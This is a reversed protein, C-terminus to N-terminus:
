VAVVLGLSLGPSWQLVMFHENESEDAIERLIQLAPAVGTGGVVIAVHTVAPRPTGTPTLQPLHPTVALASM